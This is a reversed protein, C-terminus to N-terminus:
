KKEGTLETDKFIQNEAITKLFSEYKTQFQVEYDTVDTIRIATITCPIYVTDGVNYKTTMQERREEM